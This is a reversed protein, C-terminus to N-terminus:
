RTGKVRCVKGGTKSPVKGVHTNAIEDATLTNKGPNLRFESGIQNLDVDTEELTAKGATCDCSKEPPSQSVRIRSRRRTFRFLCFLLGHFRQM